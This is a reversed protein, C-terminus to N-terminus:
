VTITRPDLYLILVSGTSICSSLSPFSEPYMYNQWGTKHMHMHAIADAEKM